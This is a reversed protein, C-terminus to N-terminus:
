KVDLRYGFSPVATIVGVFGELKKKLYNIQSDVNRPTVDFHGWVETMFQNRSVLNNKNEILLKLIEFQKPTLTVEKTEVYVQRSHLNMKLNAALLESNQEKSYDSLRKKVRLLLEKPHFPKALFDDGGSELTEIREDSTVAGSVFIIPTNKIEPTEKIIKCLEVGTVYPMKFDMLILDPNFTKVFDLAKEAQCIYRCEFHPSLIEAMLQCSEEFDDIIAIKQM